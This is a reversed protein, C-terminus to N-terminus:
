YSSIDMNSRDTIARSLTFPFESLVLNWSANDGGCTNKNAPIRVERVYINEFEEFKKDITCFLISFNDNGRLIELSDRISTLITLDPEEREEMEKGTFPYAIVYLTRYIKLNIFKSVLYDIKQKKDHFEKEIVNLAVLGNKKRGFLHNWIMEHKINRVYNYNADRQSKEIVLDEIEFLGNLHDELLRALKSYNQVVMWDFLQGGGFVNENFGFRKELHLNIQHRTVCCAGLSVFREYPQDNAQLLTTSLFLFIKIMKIM